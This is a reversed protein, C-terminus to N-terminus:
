CILTCHRPPVWASPFIQPSNSSKMSQNVQWIDAITLPVSTGLWSSRKHGECAHILGLVQATRRKDAPSNHQIQPNWEVARQIKLNELIAVM